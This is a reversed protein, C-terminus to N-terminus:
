FSNQINKRVVLSNLGAHCWEVYPGTVIGSSQFYKSTHAYRCFAVTPLADEYAFKIKIETGINNGWLEVLKSIILLVCCVFLVAYCVHKLCFLARTFHNGGFSNWSLSIKAKTKRVWEM